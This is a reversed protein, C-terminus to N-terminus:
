WRCFGYGDAMADKEFAVLESVRLGHGFCVLLLLWDRERHAKAVALLMLLQAKSLSKVDEPPEIRSEPRTNKTRILVGRDGSKM